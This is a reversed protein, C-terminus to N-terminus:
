SAAEFLNEAAVGEGPEIVSTDTLLGLYLEGLTQALIVQEAQQQTLALTLLSLNTETTQQQGTADTTTITQTTTGGVAIIQVEPLLLRTTTGTPVNGVAQGTEPDSEGTEAINGTLFIAVNSGPSVFDAVRNPDGFTFSAAIQGDPIPLRELDAPNGIRSALLAEGIYLDALVVDDANDTIDALAGGPVAAAPRDQLVFAGAEQAAAVSTGAAVDSALVLVPTPKLEAIARADSQTAYLYVLLAGLGAVVFAAILLIVRGVM